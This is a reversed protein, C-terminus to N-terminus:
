QKGQYKAIRKAIRSKKRDGTNKKLQGHQIAKDIAKQLRAALGKAEDVKEAVLAKDIKKILGKILRKVRLNVLARKKSKRLDKYAAKKVPM